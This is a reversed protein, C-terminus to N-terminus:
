SLIKNILEEDQKDAIIGLIKKKIKFALRKKIGRNKM